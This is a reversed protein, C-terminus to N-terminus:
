RPTEVEIEVVSADVDVRLKEEDRVDGEATQAYIRGLYVGWHMIDLSAVGIECAVATSLPVGAKDELELVVRHSAGCDGVDWTAELRALPQADPVPPIVVTCAFLAGAFACLYIRM